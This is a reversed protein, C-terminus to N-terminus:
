RREAIPVYDRITRGVYIQRPRAIRADPDGNQEGWQAIWGPLRGISFMVPFMNTPIGIARMIIGSYFDVNPYLKKEIFYPDKLALEELRMAIDLLPDHIGLKGLVRDCCKKIIKARPDYNKYVRHGFGMLRFGSAKDKALAICDEPKKNGRHIEELMEIVALNAGGHLPGWLACVGSACSAFLNAQSSGVMRVTATSCNQEHDAHLLFLLNLADEVEPEVAYDHYPMSFMMHLFNACYRLAPNPYTLPLGRSRRYSYAAVTRIQSIVRAAAAEFTTGNSIIFFEPHFCSIANIMASLQAMPPAGVPFGEFHHKMSEDLNANATCIARFRDLAAQTPLEGFIVLMAVELFDPHPRDFAEIPIGRYRLIGKEGDIFTIASQCSGTSGYGPDYTIAGSRARLQSIDLALEGETGELVPLDYTKGDITVSAKHRAVDGDARHRCVPQSERVPRKAIVGGGNGSRQDAM